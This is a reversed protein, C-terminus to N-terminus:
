KALYREADRWLLEFRELAQRNFEADDENREILVRQRKALAAVQKVLEVFDADVMIGGFERKEVLEAFKRWAQDQAVLKSRVEEDSAETDTAMAAQVRALMLTDQPVGCRVLCLMAVVVVVAVGCLTKLWM